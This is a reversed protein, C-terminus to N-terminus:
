APVMSVECFHMVQARIVSDGLAVVTRGRAWEMDEWISGDPAQDAMAQKGGEGASLPTEPIVPTQSWLMRALGAVLM